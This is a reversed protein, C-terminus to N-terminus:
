SKLPSSCTTVSLSSRIVAFFGLKSTTEFIMDTNGM